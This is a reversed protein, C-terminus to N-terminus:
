VLKRIEVRGRCRGGRLADVAAHTDANSCSLAPWAPGAALQSVLGAQLEYFSDLVFVLLLLLMNEAETMAVLLISASVTAINSRTLAAKANAFNPLTM